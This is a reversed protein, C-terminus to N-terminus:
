NRRIRCNGRAARLCPIARKGRLFEERANIADALFAPEADAELVDDLHQAARVRFLDAFKAVLREGGVVDAAFMRAGFPAGDAAFQHPETQQKLVGFLEVDDFEGVGAAGREFRPLFDREGPGDRGGFRRFM